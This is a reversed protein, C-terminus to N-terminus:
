SQRARAPSHRRGRAGLLRTLAPNAGILRGDFGVAGAVDTTLELFRETLTAAPVALGTSPPVV